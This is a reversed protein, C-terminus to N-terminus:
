WFDSKEDETPEEWELFEISGDKAVTPELKGQIYAAPKLLLLGIAVGLFDFAATSVGIFLVIFNIALWLMYNARIYNTAAHPAKKLAKKFAEEMFFLKISTVFGGLCLGFVYGLKNAVFSIGLLLTIILLIIVNRLLLFVISKKDIM